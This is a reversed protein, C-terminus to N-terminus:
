EEAPKSIHRLLMDKRQRTIPLTEIVRVAGNIVQQQTRTGMPGRAAEETLRMLNASAEKSGLSAARRYCKLARDTDEEMGIGDEYMIGLNNVADADGFHDGYRFCQLAMDYDPEGGDAGALYLCGMYNFLHPAKMDRLCVEQLLKLAAAPDQQVGGGLMLYRAQEVQAHSYGLAAAKSVWAYADELNRPRGFGSECYRAYRAMASLCARHMAPKNRWKQEQRALQLALEAAKEKQQPLGHFWGERINLLTECAPAYGARICAELMDPIADMKADNPNHLTVIAATYLVAATEEDPVEPPASSDKQAAPSLPLMLGAIIPLIWKMPGM